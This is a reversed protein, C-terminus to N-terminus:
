QVLIYVRVVKNTLIDGQLNGSYVILPEESLAQRLHIHGLAFYDYNLDKIEATTFPVYVNQYNTTTKAGAHM